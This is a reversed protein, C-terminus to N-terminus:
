RTAHTLACVDLLSARVKVADAVRQEPELRPSTCDGNRLMEAQEVKRFLLSNSVSKGVSSSSATRRVAKSMASASGLSMALRPRAVESLESSSENGEEVSMRAPKSLV